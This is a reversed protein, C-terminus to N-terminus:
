DHRGIADVRVRPHHRTGGSTDSWGVVQGVDNVGLAQSETGGLTGLDVMGGGASWLFAHMNGGATENGGVVQGAQNIDYAISDSGGLTGLDVMGSGASWLFAHPAFSATLAWGVIQGANNIDTAAARPGGLTGLDTPVRAPQAQATGALAVAFGATMAIRQLSIIPFGGLIRRM